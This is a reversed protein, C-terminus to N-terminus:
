KLLLMKKTEVFEGAQLRYFYVGTAVSGSGEVKGDWQIQHEGAEMPGNVLTAVKQGMINFVDLTVDTAEPLSFSITTVPNFPNPYNQNLSFASPLAGQDEAYKYAIDQIDAPISGAPLKVGVNIFGAVFCEQSRKTM